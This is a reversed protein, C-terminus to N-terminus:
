FGLFLLQEICITRLWEINFKEALSFLIFFGYEDFNKRFDKEIM